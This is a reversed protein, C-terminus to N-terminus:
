PWLLSGVHSCVYVDAYKEGSVMVNAWARTRPDYIRIVPETLMSMIVVRGDDLVVVPYLQGRRHVWEPACQISYRRSWVGKDVDVLFWIEMLCHQSTCHVMVLSGNLEALQFDRRHGYYSLKEETGGILSSVPGRIRLRWEETALDFSAISDPESGSKAYHLNLLFYAVGGVVATNGSTLELPVGPRPLERWVYDGGDGDFTMAYVCGGGNFFINDFDMRFLLVKLEGTSPVFGLIFPSKPVARSGLNAVDGTATDVVVCSARFVSVCVYDLQVSLHFSRRPVTTIRKVVDGSTLDIFHIEPWKHVLYSSISEDEITHRWPRYLGIAIPHRRSHSEAFIPDSALSRWSRCVLRLRRLEKAPLRLFIERLVDSPFAHRVGDDGDSAGADDLNNRKQNPRGLASGM